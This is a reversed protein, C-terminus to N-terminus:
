RGLTSVPAPAIIRVSQAATATMAGSMMSHDVAGGVASGKIPKKKFKVFEEDLRIIVEPAAVLRREQPTHAQGERMAAAFFNGDHVSWASAKVVSDWSPADNPAELERGGLLAEGVSSGASDSSLPQLPAAAVSTEAQGPRLGVKGDRGVAFLSGGHTTNAHRVAGSDGMTRELSPPRLRALHKPEFKCPNKLSEQALCRTEAVWALALVGDPCALNRWGSFRRARSWFKCVRSVVCKISRISNHSGRVLSVRRGGDCARVPAM